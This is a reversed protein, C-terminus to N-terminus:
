VRFLPGRDLKNRNIKNTINPVETLGPAQLTDPSAHGGFDFGSIAGPLNRRCDCIEGSMLRVAGLGGIRKNWHEMKM